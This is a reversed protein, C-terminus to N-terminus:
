DNPRSGTSKNNERTIIRKGRYSTMCECKETTIRILEPEASGFVRLEALAQLARNHMGLGEFVIARLACYELTKKSKRGEKQLLLPYLKQLQTLAEAFEGQEAHLRATTCCTDMTREHAAGYLLECLVCLDEMEQVQETVLGQRQYHQALRQTSMIASELLTNKKRKLQLLSSGSDLPKVKLMRFEKKNGNM